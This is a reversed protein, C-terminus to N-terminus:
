RTMGTAPANITPLYGVNSKVICEHDHVQINFGTWSSVEQKLQAHHLRALLFIPNKKRAEKM